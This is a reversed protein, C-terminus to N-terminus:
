LNRSGKAKRAAYRELYKLSNQGSDHALGRGVNDIFDEHEESTAIAKQHYGFKFNM